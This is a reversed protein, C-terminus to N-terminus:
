TLCSDSKNLGVVADDLFEVDTSRLGDWNEEQAIKAHFGNGEGELVSVVDAENPVM